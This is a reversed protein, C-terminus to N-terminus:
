RKQHPRHPQLRLHIAYEWTGLGSISAAEHSDIDVGM